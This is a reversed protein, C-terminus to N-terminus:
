FSHNKHDQHFSFVGCTETSTNIYLYEGQVRGGGAEKMPLVRVMWSPAEGFAERMSPPAARLRCFSTFPKNELYDKKYM